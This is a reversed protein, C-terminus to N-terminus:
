ADSVHQALGQPYMLFVCSRVELRTLPHGNLYQTIFAINISQVPLWPLRPSPITDELHCHFWSKFSLHPKALHLFFMVVVGCAM